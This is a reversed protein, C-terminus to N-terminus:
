HSSPMCAAGGRSMAPQDPSAIAFRGDAFDIVIVDDYSVLGTVAVWGGARKRIEMGLCLEDVPRCREDSM